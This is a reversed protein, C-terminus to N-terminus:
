SRGGGIVGSEQAQLVQTGCGADKLSRTKRYGRKRKEADEAFEANIGGEGHVGDWSQTRQTLDGRGGLESSVVADWEDVFFM